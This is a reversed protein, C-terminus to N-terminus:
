NGSPRPAMWINVGSHTQPPTGVLKTVVEKLAEYHYDPGLIIMETQWTQLDRRAQARAAEDIFPMEGTRQVDALLQATPLPPGGSIRAEGEANPGLFYGGPMEFRYDAQSQWYMVHATGPLPFPLVLANTGKPLEQAKGTFYAPVDPAEVTPIKAPLLPLLCMVAATLAAFPFRATSLQHVALALLAAAFVAVLLGFRSALSAETVPLDRLIRYPGGITTQVGDVWLKAGLSLVASVLLGVAACQVAMRKRGLVLTALCLIVLPWGLYALHEEIGGPFQESRQVAEQSHLLVGRTATTFATVDAAYYDPLFPSGHHKLPGFFQLFLPYAAVPLFVAFALGLHRALRPAASRILRPRSVAASLLVLLAGLGAQFLVEEGTFVQALAVLGLWLGTRGAPRDVRWAQISLGILVPLSGALSMTIHGTLSNVVAPSIAFCAAGVAAPGTPLELPRRLAWYAGAFCLPLALFNLLNLTLMPGGLATVPFLLVAPLLLTTNNMASVGTPWNMDRTFFPSEGQSIAHPTHGLWWTYHFADPTNPAIIRAGPASWLGSTAAVGFGMAVIAFVVLLRNTWDPGAVPDAPPAEATITM